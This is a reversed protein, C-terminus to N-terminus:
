PGGERGGHRVRFEESLRLREIELDIRHKTLRHLPDDLLHQCRRLSHGCPRLPQQFLALIQETRRFHWRLSAEFFAPSISDKGCRLLPTIQGAMVAPAMLLMRLKEMTAWM